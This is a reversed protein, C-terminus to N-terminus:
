SQSKCVKSLNIKTATTMPTPTFKQSFEKVNRYGLKKAKEALSKEDKETSNPYDSIFYPILQQRLGLRRNIDDFYNKFDVFRYHVGNFIIRCSHVITIFDADSKYLV